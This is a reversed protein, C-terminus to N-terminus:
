AKEAARISLAPKRYDANYKNPRVLLYVLAALVAISGYMALPTFRGFTRRLIREAQNQGNQQRLSLKPYLYLVSGAAAFAGSVALAAPPRDTILSFLFLAWLLAAPWLRLGPAKM